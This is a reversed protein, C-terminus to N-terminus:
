GCVPGRACIQIEKTTEHNGGGRSLTIGDTLIRGTHRLWCWLIKMDKQFAGYSMFPSVPEIRRCFIVCPGKPYNPYEEVVVGEDIGLFIERANLGDETLEDYGHESLRVDGTRILARIREAFDSL